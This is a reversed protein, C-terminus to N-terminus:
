SAIIEDVADDLTKDEVVGEAEPASREVKKAAKKSVVVAKGGDVAEIPREIDDLKDDTVLEEKSSGKAKTKGSLMDYLVAQAKSM